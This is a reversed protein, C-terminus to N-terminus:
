RQVAGGLVTVPGCSHLDHPHPSNLLNPYKLLVTRLQMSTRLWLLVVTKRVSNLSSHSFGVPQPNEDKDEGKEADGNKQQGGGNQQEHKEPEEGMTGESSSHRRTGEQEVTVEDYALNTSM